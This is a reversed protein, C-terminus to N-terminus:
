LSGSFSSGAWLLDGPFLIDYEFHLNLFNMINVYPYMKNMMYPVFKKLIVLYLLFIKSWSSQIENFSIFCHSSLGIVRLLFATSLSM